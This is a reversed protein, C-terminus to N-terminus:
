GVTGSDAITVKADSALSCAKGDDTTAGAGRTVAFSVWDEVNGCATIAGGGTTCAANIWLNPSILIPRACTTEGAGSSRTVSCRVNALSGAADPGATTGGGGERSAVPVVLPPRSMESPM